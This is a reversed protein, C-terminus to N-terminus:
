RDERETIIYDALPGLKGLLQALEARREENVYVVDDRVEAPPNPRMLGAAILLAEVRRRENINIPPDDWQVSIRVHAQEPLELPSLLRLTGHEYIAETTVNMPMNDM